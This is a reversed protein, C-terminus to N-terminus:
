VKNKIMNINLTIKYKTKDHKHETLNHNTDTGGCSCSLQHWLRDHHAEQLAQDGEHPGEPRGPDSRIWLDSTDNMIGNM